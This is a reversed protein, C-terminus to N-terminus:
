QANYKSLAATSSRRQPGTRTGSHASQRIQIRRRARSTPSTGTTTMISPADGYSGNDLFVEHELCVFIWPILWSVLHRGGNDRLCQPCFNSGYGRLLTHKMRIAAFPSLPEDGALVEILDALTMAKIRQACLGTASQAAALDTDRLGALLGHVADSSTSVKIGLLRAVAYPPRDMDRALARLWSGIQEGPLPALALPWRRANPSALEVIHDSRGPM